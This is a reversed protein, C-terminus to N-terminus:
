PLMSHVQCISKRCIALEFCYLVSKLSRPPAKCYSFMVFFLLQALRWFRRQVRLPQVCPPRFAPLRRPSWPFHPHVNTTHDYAMGGADTAEDYHQTSPLKAPGVVVHKLKEWIGQV